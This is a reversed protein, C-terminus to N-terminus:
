ENIILQFKSPLKDIEKEFIELVEFPVNVMEENDIRIEIPGAGEAQNWEVSQIKAYEVFRNNIPLDFLNFIKTVILGETTVTYKFSWLNTLFVFIFLVSLFIIATINEPYSTFIFILGLLAFVALWSTLIDQKENEVVDLVKGFVDTRNDM